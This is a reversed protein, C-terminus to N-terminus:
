IAAHALDIREVGLRTVAGTFRNVRRRVELDGLVQWFGGLHRVLNADNSRHGSFDTHVAGCFIHHAGTVRAAAGDYVWVDARPSLMIETATVCLHGARNADVASAITAVTEKGAAM